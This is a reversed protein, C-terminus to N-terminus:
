QENRRLTLLYQFVDRWSIIGAITQTPQVIPICSINHGLFVQIAQKISADPSLTVPDRSMIQHAKKNLVTMEKANALESQVKPTIELLLDRDSIIGMLKDNKVVLLHHFRHQKFLAHITELSDDMGVTVVETTM